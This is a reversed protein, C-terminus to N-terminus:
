LPEVGFAGMPMGMGVPGVDPSTPILAADFSPPGYGFDSTIATVNQTIQVITQSNINHEGVLQSFFRQTVQSWQGSALDAQLVTMMNQTLPLAM